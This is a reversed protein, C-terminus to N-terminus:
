QLLIIYKICVNCIFLEVVAQHASSTLQWAVKSKSEQSFREVTKFSLLEPSVLM